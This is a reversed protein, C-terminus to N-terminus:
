NGGDDASSAAKKSAKAEDEAIAKRAVPLDFSDLVASDEATDPRVVGDDDAALERQSGDQATYGFRQGPTARRPNQDPM